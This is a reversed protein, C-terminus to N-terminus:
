ARWVGALRLPAYIAPLAMGDCTLSDGGVSAAVAAERLADVGM